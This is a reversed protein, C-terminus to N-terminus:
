AKEFLGTRQCVLLSITDRQCLTFVWRHQFRATLLPLPPFQELAIRFASVDCIANTRNVIGTHGLEALAKM